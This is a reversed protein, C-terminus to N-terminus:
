VIGLNGGGEVLIELGNNRFGSQNGRNEEEVPAKESSVLCCCMEYALAVFVHSAKLAHATSSRKPQVGLRQRRKLADESKRGGTCGQVFLLALHHFRSRGIM